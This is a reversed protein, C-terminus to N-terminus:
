VNKSFHDRVLKVVTGSLLFLAVLNPIAMLGNCTDAIGWVIGLDVTAGLIAVLSYVVMFPKVIKNSFVFEICRAGYLGWGLITSFAFCCMAIATFISVWNGYTSTFGSITLEAGAAAGYNINVGSCLIVLATLTCIVITDAFVEFIGFMGQRVPQDTDACAHAISGTGIGAENSFIGRSVGRRMTIFFSGVVGGTFASPNFAGAFISAFVAPVSGIHLIVVGLAFVIYLVAMFPVLKETVGGIRKVGGLLVIAVLIAIIIGLVLNVTSVQTDSIVGYNLLASDISTTITNVQTANGTGLVTLSGLLAYLSAMWYWKKGLGNKIYYMPGGVYDGDKNKERFHVALTVESFKTCMGLLASIWMWFVAGPGGIAIAGAVGAINGTGVTAALATCVAQFPTISGEKAEEKSFIRGISNKLAYGFKRFQIFKTRCSLVLGVGIICIMAPVGWVFDNVATNISEITQLM